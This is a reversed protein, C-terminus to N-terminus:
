KTLLFQDFKDNISGRINVYNDNCNISVFTGTKLMGGKSKYVIKQGSKYICLRQEKSYITGM